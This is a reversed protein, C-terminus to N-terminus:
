SRLMREIRRVDDPTDCDTAEDDPLPVAIWDLRGLTDRLSAGGTLGCRRLVETRWVGVLWQPRGGADVGIAGDAGQSSALLLRVTELSLLPQDGAVVVVYETTVAPLAAAIGAAPGGGPPDERCWEVPRATARRPGVVIVNRAEAVAHFVYDLMPRDALSMATKDAGGLRSSAGGALVIADYPALTM